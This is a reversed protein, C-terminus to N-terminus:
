GDCACPVTACKSWGRGAQEIRRAGHSPVGRHRRGTDGCPRGEAREDIHPAGRHGLRHRSLQSGRPRCLRCRGSSGTSGSQTGGSWANRTPPSSSALLTRHDRPVPPLRLAHVRAAPNEQVFQHVWRPRDALADFRDGNPVDVLGVIFMRPRSQPVFRRADVALMDCSYGLDNPARGGRTPRGWWPEIRLGPRERPAGSRATSRADRGACARVGLVHKLRWGPRAASGSRGLGKPKWRAVPRHLPVVRNCPGCHPRRGWQRRTRRRSRVRRDRLERRVHRAQGARHRQGM